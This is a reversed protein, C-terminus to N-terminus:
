SAIVRVPAVAVCFTRTAALAVAGPPVVVTLESLKRLVVADAFLTSVNPTAVSLSTRADPPRSTCFTTLPVLPVEESPAAALEPRIVEPKALPM